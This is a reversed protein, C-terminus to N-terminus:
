SSFLRSYMMDHCGQLLDLLPASSAPGGLGTGWDLARGAAAREDARVVEEAVAGLERLLGAAEMPGVLNLRTAASLMDRLTMYLFMRKAASAEFGLAGTLAGFACVQHCSSRQGREEGARQRYMARLGALLRRMAQSDNSFAACSARLLSAGLAESARQAVHNGVLQCHLRSDLEAVRSLAADIADSAPDAALPAAAALVEELYPLLSSATNHLAQRCFLAVSEASADVVSAQAAAELGQSHAFGGTPLLSDLLQWAAWQRAAAASCGM